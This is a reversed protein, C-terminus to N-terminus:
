SAPPISSPRFYPLTTGGVQHFEVTVPLGLQVDEAECGILNSVLSFREAMEVIIVVYPVEFEATQPRWVVSWSYISGEGSSDRWTLRPSHCWRCRYGPDSMAHGCVECAQYRLVGDACGDWFPRSLLTVAPLPIGARQPRLQSV